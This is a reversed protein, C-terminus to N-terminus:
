YTEQCQFIQLLTNMFNTLDWSLVNELSRELSLNLDNQFCAASLFFLNSAVGDGSGFARQGM